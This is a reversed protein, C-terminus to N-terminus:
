EVVASATGIKVSMTKTLIKEPNTRKLLLNPQLRTNLRAAPNNATIPRTSVPHKTDRHTLCDRTRKKTGRGQPSARITGTRSWIRTSWGPGQSGPQPQTEIRIRFTKRDRTHNEQRKEAMRQPETHIPTSSSPATISIEAQRTRTRM